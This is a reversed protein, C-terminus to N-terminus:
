GRVVVYAAFLAAKLTRTMLLTSNSNVYKRYLCELCDKDTFHEDFISKNKEVFQLIKQHASQTSDKFFDISNNFDYEFIGHESVPLQFIKPINDKEKRWLDYAKHQTTIIEIGKFIEKSTVRKREDLLTVVNGQNYFTEVKRFLKLLTAIAAGHDAIEDGFIKTSSGILQAIQKEATRPFDIHLLNFKKLKRFLNNNNEICRLNKIIKRKIVKELSLYNMQKNIESIKNTICKRKGKGGGGIKVTLEIYDNSSFYLNQTFNNSKAFSDSDLNIGVKLIKHIIYFFDNDLKWPKSSKKAQYTEILYIKGDDNEFCFLFDDHHEICIFFDKGKFKNFDELFLYLAVHKQFEIGTANHVGANAEPTSM